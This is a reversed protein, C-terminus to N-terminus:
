VVGLVLVVLVVEKPLQEVVMIKIEVVVEVVQMVLRHDLLVQQPEQEVLEVQARHIVQMLVQRRLEVVAAVQMKIMVLALKLVM